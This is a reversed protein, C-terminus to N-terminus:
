RWTRTGQEPVIIQKPEVTPADSLAYGSARHRFALMLQGTERDVALTTVIFADNGGLTKKMVRVAFAPKGDLEIPEVRLVAVPSASELQKKVEDPTLAAQAAGAALGAALAIVVARMM